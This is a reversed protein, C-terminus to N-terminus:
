PNSSIAKRCGPRNDPDQLHDPASPRAGPRSIWGSFRPALALAANVRESARTEAETLPLTQVTLAM